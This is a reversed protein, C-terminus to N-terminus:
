GLICQSPAGKASAESITHISALAGTDLARPRAVIAPGILSEFFLATVTGDVKVVRSIQAKSIGVYWGQELGGLAQIGSYGNIDATEAHREHGSHFCVTIREMNAMHPGTTLPQGSATCEGDWAIRRWAAVLATSLRQYHNSQVSEEPRTPSHSRSRAIVNCNDGELHRVYCRPPGVAFAGVALLSPKTVTLAIFRRLWIKIATLFPVYRDRCFPYTGTV